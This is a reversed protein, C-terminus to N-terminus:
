GGRFSAIEMELKLGPAIGADGPEKLFQALIDVQCGDLGNLCLQLADLVQDQVQWDIAFPGVRHAVQHHGQRVRALGDHAKSYHARYQGWVWRRLQILQEAVIYIADKSCVLIYLVGDGPADLGQQIAQNQGCRKFVFADAVFLNM